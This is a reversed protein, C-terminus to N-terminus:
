EREEKERDIRLLASDVLKLASGFSEDVFYLGWAEKEMRM